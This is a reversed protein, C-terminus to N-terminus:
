FDTYIWKPYLPNAQDSRDSKCQTTFHVKQMAQNSKLWQETKIRTSLKQKNLSDLLGPTVPRYRARCPNYRSFKPAKLVDEYPAGLLREDENSETPSKIHRHKIEPTHTTQSTEFNLEMIIEPLNIYGSSYKRHMSRGTMDCRTEDPLELTSNPSPHSGSSNSISKRGVLGRRSPVSGSTRVRPLRIDQRYPDIAATIGRSNLETGRTHIAGLLNRRAVEKRDSQGCRSMIVPASRYGLLKRKGEFEKSSSMLRV